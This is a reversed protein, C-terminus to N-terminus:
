SSAGGSNGDSDSNYENLISSLNEKKKIVFNYSKEFNNKKACQATGVESLRSKFISIRPKAMTGEKGEVGDTSVQNTRRVKIPGEMGAEGAEDSHIHKKKVNVSIEEKNCPPSRQLTDDRASKDCNINHVDSEHSDDNQSDSNEPGAEEELVEEEIVIDDQGGVSGTPAGEPHDAAARSKRLLTFFAKEDESDLNNMFFNNKNNKMESKEYLKDLAKNISNFKDMHRRNMNKLEELQENTKLELLANYSEKEKNKVKDEEKILNNERYYDDAIEQEKHADYTRIGGAILIYDGNKPDTKFIIENKCEFCKGYFQWIPINLYSEDRLKEVRSNFKTGVYTFSKCKSCKLTFPYMMRINLFHKKKRNYKNSKNKKKEIKRMLKKSETLKDPDFDPPIYKNLVKREAM